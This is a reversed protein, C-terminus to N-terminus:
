DIFIFKSLHTFPKNANLLTLFPMQKKLVKRFEQMPDPLSLFLSPSQKDKINFAPIELDAKEGDLGAIHLGEAIRRNHHVNYRATRPSRTIEKRVKGNKEKVHRIRAECGLRTVFLESVLFDDIYGTRQTFDDEVNIKKMEERSIWDPQPLGHIGDRSKM